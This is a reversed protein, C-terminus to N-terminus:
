PGDHRRSRRAARDRADTRIEDRLKNRRAGHQRKGELEREVRDLEPAPGYLRWGNRLLPIVVALAIIIPWFFGTAGSALWIGTCIVFAGAGGGAEQVLRRQLEGRRAALEAKREAPTAPLPPLDALVAKIDHETRADYAAQVRQSLEEDTLRGAAFHERIEQAARDRQEDSARLDPGDSM